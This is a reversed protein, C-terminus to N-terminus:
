RGLSFSSVSRWLVSAPTIGARLDDIREVGPENLTWREVDDAGLALVLDIAYLEQLLDVAVDADAESAFEFEFHRPRWTEEVVDDDYSVRSIIKVPFWFTGVYLRWNFKRGATLQDGM